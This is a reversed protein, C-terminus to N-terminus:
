KGSGPKLWGANRMWAACLGPWSATVGDGVGFGHGGTAYVHLEARVGAKKLAQYMAVSDVASVPDNEAVLIFTPPCDKSVRIGAVLAETKDTVLYAPYGLVLFDPRCSVADVADIQKYSRRDFNTALAAALHGGASFGMIGIRKPDLNWEAAKSRVLSLTRQADQLPEPPPQMRARTGPAPAVRYKLFIATLGLSNLWKGVDEGERDWALWSYGGGPCIVVAAGNAHETPRLITITPKTVNTIFRDRHSGRKGERVKEESGTADPTGGPADGPWINVVTAKDSAAASVAGWSAAAVSSIATVLALHLLPCRSLSQSRKM